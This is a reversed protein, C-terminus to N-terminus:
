DYNVLNKKVLVVGNSNKIKLTTKNVKVVTGYNPIVSYADDFWKVQDGIKFEIMIKEM